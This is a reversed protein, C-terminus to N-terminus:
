EYNIQRTVFVWGFSRFLTDKSVQMEEPALDEVFVVKEAPAALVEASGVLLVLQRM